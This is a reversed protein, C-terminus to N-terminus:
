RVTVIAPTARVEVTSFDVFYYWPGCGSKLWTTGRACLLADDFREGSTAEFRFAWAEADSWQWWGGGEPSWYLWVRRGKNEGEKVLATIVYRDPFSTDPKHMEELEKPANYRWYGTKRADVVERMEGDYFELEGM